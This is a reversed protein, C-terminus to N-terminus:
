ASCYRYGGGAADNKVELGENADRGGCLFQANVCAEQGPTPLNFSAATFLNFELDPERILLDEPGVESIDATFTPNSVQNPNPNPDSKPLYLYLPYPKLTTPTLTLFSRTGSYPKALM